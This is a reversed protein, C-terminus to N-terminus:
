GQNLHGTGRVLLLVDIFGDFANGFRGLHPGM